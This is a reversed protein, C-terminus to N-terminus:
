VKWFIQWRKGMPRCIERLVYLLTAVVVLIGLVVCLVRFVLVERRAREECHEKVLAVDMRPYCMRCVNETDLEFNPKKHQGCIKELDYAKCSSEECVSRHNSSTNSSGQKWRRPSHIPNHPFAPLSVRKLPGRLNLKWDRAAHAAEQIAQRQSISSLLYGFLRSYDVTQSRSDLRQELKSQSAPTPRRQRLHSQDPKPEPDSAEKGAQTLPLLPGPFSQPNYLGDKQKNFLFEELRDKCRPVGNARFDSSTLTLTLNLEAASESNNYDTDVEGNALPFWTGSCRPKVPCSLSVACGTGDLQRIDSVVVNDLEEIAAFSSDGLQGRLSPLSSDWTGNTFTGWIAYFYAVLRQQCHM